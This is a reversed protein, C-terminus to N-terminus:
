AASAQTDKGRLLVLLEAECAKASEVNRAKIHGFGRIKAPLSAIEIALAHNEPNLSASLERILAEYDAILRREMRREQTYGFIDLATGRLPRLWTLLRFVHRMWPGFARKKPEGTAPDRRALLPPALHYEVTFDGEFQRQLKKIFAGDTYLRAVEYEDKYAMLTFLNRATAEALGSFGRALKAEAIRITRVTNRYRQAYAANQYDKLFAARREVLADLNQPEPVPDDRLGGRVLAEVQTRDHAALRGWAFSRKNTDVAVGNLEVAREIAGLSLPVLGKQFAYGLMFLNAAISDGMLAAALGTADISDAGGDAAATKIAHLMKATEFDIDPKFIFAATPQAHSNIIAKTVGSQIRSLAAPSAAVVPDCALLVDAGGSAVRVAYLDEPQPALRVHSMVAGNKQALGSIDLVTCGKGELHAAMGILAGLTVVGTGGVGTVLISYPRQLPPAKPEPLNAFLSDNAALGGLKRPTAGRVTVFSPCFGKLCSFDKNCNSQDIRRKRGLETEVPLVAICNSKDSCDGCGECV